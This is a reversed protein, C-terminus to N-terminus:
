WDWGFEGVPVVISSDRDVRSQPSFKILRLVRGDESVLFANPMITGDAIATLKIEEDCVLRTGVVVFKKGTLDAEALLDWTAIDRVQVRLTEVEV